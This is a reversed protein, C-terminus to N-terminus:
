IHYNADVLGSSGTGGVEEGRGRLLGLDTRRTLPDKETECIPEFDM